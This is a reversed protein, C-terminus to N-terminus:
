EALQNRGNWASPARLSGCDSSIRAMMIDHLAVRHSRLHACREPLRDAPPPPLRRVKLLLQAPRYDPDEQPRHLQSCAATASPIQIQRHLLPVFHLSSCALPLQLSTALLVHASGLWYLTCSTLRRCVFYAATHTNTPTKNQADHTHTTCVHTAHTHTKNHTNRRTDTTTNQNTHTQIHADHATVQLAKKLCQQAAPIQGTYLQLVVLLPM